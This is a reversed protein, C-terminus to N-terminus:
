NLSNKALGVARLMNNIEKQPQNYYNSLWLRYYQYGSQHAIKCRYIDFLYDEYEKHIMKGNFDVLLKRKNEFELLVEYNIGGLEYSNNWNIVIAHNETLTKVLEETFNILDEKQYITKQDIKEQLPAVANLVQIQQQDDQNSVAEAYTLFAYFVGKGFVGKEDLHYQYDKYYLEPVSSFIKIKKIARTILVNLLKHGKEKTNLPGFFQNFKGEKNPGYTTSILIIEREEGQINEINKVFFGQDLLKDMKYKFKHDNVSKNFIMDLILNQQFQNFTAVGISQDIPAENSLYNIIEGAEKLNTRNLFMGNVPIWDIPSYKKTSPLPILRKKYFAHNSFQILAPHTSRYHIDLYHDKFTGNKCYDLLSSLNFDEGKINNIDTVEGFYNSPPLQQSDGSVVRIKGRLLAPFTDEIRLQSSEDFVVFDFFGVEMPFLQSCSTPNAIVIPFLNYFVKSPDRTIKHLPLKIRKSTNRKSFFHEISLQNKREFDIISERRSKKAHNHALDAYYQNVIKLDEVLDFYGEEFGNFELTNRHNKELINGLYWRYFVGEFGEIECIGILCKKRLEPLSYFYRHFQLLQDFHDLGAPIIEIARLIKELQLVPEVRDLEQLFTTDFLKCSIIFEKIKVFQQYLSKLKPNNSKVYNFYKIEFTSLKKGQSKLENIVKQIREHHLNHIKFYLSELTSKKNTSIFDKNILPYFTKFPNQNSKLYEKAFSLDHLISEWEEVNFAFLSSNLQLQDYLQKIENTHVRLVLDSYSQNFEKIPQLLKEKIKSILGVTSKVNKIRNEIQQPSETKGEIKSLEFLDNGGKKELTIINRAKNVILRRDKKVDTIRVAYDSLGLQILNEYIVDMATKKECVLLCNQGKSLAYHLVATITKSKGTGPPGHIISNKGKSLSRIVGQQSHDLELGSFHTPNINKKPKFNCSIIEDELHLFDAIIPEKSNAYLGLVGNNILIHNEDKLNTELDETLPQIPLNFFGKSVKKKGFKELLKNITHIFEEPSNKIGEEIENTYNNQPLTKIYRLLSPNVTVMETLKIKLSFHNLKTSSQKITADWVFVPTLQLQKKKTKILVLPYGFGLPDLNLDNKSAENKRFIHVWKQYIKEHIPAPNSLEIKFSSSFLFDILFSSTLDLQCLKAISQLDLKVRSKKPHADVFISRANSDILRERLASIQHHPHNGRM